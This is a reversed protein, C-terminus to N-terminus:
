QLDEAKGILWFTKMMGKGQLQLLLILVRQAWNLHVMTIFTKPNVPCREYNLRIELSIKWFSQTQQKVEILGARGWPRRYM